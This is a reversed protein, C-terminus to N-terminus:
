RALIRLESNSSLRLRESELLGEKLIGLAFREAHERAFVHISVTGFAVAVQPPRGAPLHFLVANKAPWTVELLYRAIDKDPMSCGFTIGAVADQRAQKESAARRVAGWCVKTGQASFVDFVEVRGRRRALEVRFSVDKVVVRQPLEWDLKAKQVSGDEVGLVRMITTASRLESSVPEGMCAEALLLATTWGVAFRIM